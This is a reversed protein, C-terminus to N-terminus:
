MYEEIFEIVKNQYAENEHIMPAHFSKEFFHLEKNTSGLKEYIDKAMVPPHVADFKGWYLAVPNTITSLQATLDYAVLKDFLPRNDNISSNTLAILSNGMLSIIKDPKINIQAVSDVETFLERLKYSEQLITLKGDFSLTDASEVTDFIKQWTAINNGYGIQQQAHHLIFKREEGTLMPIDHSGNSQIFGKIMSKHKGNVLYDLGLTAGWSHGLLFFQIDHGYKFQLLEVLKDIDEVFDSVELQTADCNGQSLGACRQDYYVMAFESEVKSFINNYAFSQIGSDGPGGHLVICFVKSNTNGRVLVPM